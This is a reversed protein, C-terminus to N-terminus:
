ASASTSGEDANNEAEKMKQYEQYKKSSPNYYWAPLLASVAEETIRVINASTIKELNITIYQRSNKKERCIYEYQGPTIRRVTPQSREDNHMEMLLEMAARKTDFFDTCIEGQDFIAWRGVLIEQIIRKQHVDLLEVAEVLEPNVIHEMFYPM